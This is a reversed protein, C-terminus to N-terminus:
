GLELRAVSGGRPNKTVIIKNDIRERLEPVHSIVGVLRDGQALQTLTQLARDLYDPDLAGFGEDIFMADLRVGGAMRQIVDSLGLALSLSAVFSEGGSLTNVGRTKGTNHDFVDLELGAKGGMSAAQAAYRFELAGDSMRRFRGNAAEIVQKFFASQVYRELSVRSLGAATGNAVACLEDLAAARAAQTGYAAWLPELKELAERNVARTIGLQGLQEDLADVADRANDIAAALADHNPTEGDPTEAQALEDRLHTRLTQLRADEARHGDIKQQLQDRAAEDPLQAARYDGLTAFGARLRAEDFDAQTRVALAAAKEADQAAQACLVARSAATERKAQLATQAATLADLKQKDADAVSRAEAETPYPLHAAIADREATLAARNRAETEAQVALGRLTDDLADIQTDAREILETLDARRAFGTQLTQAEAALAALADACDKQLASLGVAGDPAAPSLGHAALLPDLRERVSALRMGLRDKDLKLADRHERAHEAATQAAKVQGEDPADHALAAPHPHATSGCVPCPAGDALQAAILGEQARFFAAELTTHSQKAAEWADNADALPRTLARLDRETDSCEDLLAAARDLRDRAAQQEATLRKNKEQAAELGMLAALEGRQKDTEQRLALVADDTAANDEELQALRAECAALARLKEGHLAYDPLSQEIRDLAARLADLAPANAQAAQLALGAEHLQADAAANDKVAAERTQEARSQAAAAYRHATEETAAQRTRKDLALTTEAHRITEDNAHLQALEGDLKVLEAQKAARAQARELTQKAGDLAAQAQERAASLVGFETDSQANLRRLLEIYQPTRLLNFPLLADYDARLANDANIRIGACLSDLQQVLRSKEGSQAARLVHLENQFREFHSTDFVRRFIEGREDSNARLFLMFEGQAIMIIQRFQNYDVGVLQEIKKNAEKINTIIRGDDLTLEVSADEKTLGSGRKAPRLYEPTRRITHERGACEFTLKVYTQETPPAYGSRLTNAGRHGGSTDGYLAYTMADFITTKGAGTDGTILFLGRADFQRFDIEQAQAYPGFAAFQLLLPKM